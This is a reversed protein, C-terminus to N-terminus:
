EAAAPLKNWGGLALATDRAAERIEHALKVDDIARAVAMGGICLAAVALARRRPEAGPVGAQLHEVMYELVQRYARRVPEGGRAVDSPLAMLPCGNDRDEFHAPSLYAAVFAGGSARPRTGNAPAAGEGERCALVQQVVEAYLEEKTSFHNYFGGRTLGADAMIEDISVGNFGHRNFLRRASQV